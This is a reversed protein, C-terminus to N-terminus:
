LCTLLQIARYTLFLSVCVYAHVCAWVCLKLVFLFSSWKKSETQKVTKHFFSLVISQLRWCDMRAEDPKRSRLCFWPGPIFVNLVSIKGCVLWVRGPSDLSTQTPQQQQPSPPSCPQGEDPFSTGLPFIHRHSAWLSCRSRWHLAPRGKLLAEYCRLSPSNVRFLPVNRCLPITQRKRLEIHSHKQRVSASTLITYRQGCQM